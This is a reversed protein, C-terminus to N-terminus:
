RSLQIKGAPSIDDVFSATTAFAMLNSYVQGANIIGEKFFPSELFRIKNASTYLGLLLISESTLDCTNQSRVGSHGISASEISVHQKTHIM